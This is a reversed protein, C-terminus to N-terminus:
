AFSESNPLNSDSFFSRIALTFDKPAMDFKYAADEVRADRHISEGGRLIINIVDVHNCAFESFLASCEPKHRYHDSTVNAMPSDEGDVSYRALVLTGPTKTNKAAPVLSSRHRASVIAEVQDKIHANEDLNSLDRAEEELNRQEALIALALDKPDAVDIRIRGAEFARIPAFFASMFSNYKKTVHGTLWTSIKARSKVKPKDSPQPDTYKRLESQQSRYFAEQGRAVITLVIMACDELELHTINHMAKVRGWFFPKYAIFDASDRHCFHALDNFIQEFMQKASSDRMPFARKATVPKAM